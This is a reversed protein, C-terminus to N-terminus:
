FVSCVLGIEFTKPLGIKLPIVFPSQFHSFGKEIKAFTKVCLLQFHSLVADQGDKQHRNQCVGAVNCFCAGGVGFRWFLTNLPSVPLLGKGLNMRLKLSNNM